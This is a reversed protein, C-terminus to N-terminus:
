MLAVESNFRASKSVKDNGLNMRYVVSIDRKIFSNRTDCEILKRLWIYFM